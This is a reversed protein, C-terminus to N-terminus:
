KAETAIARNAVRSVVIPDSEACELACAIALDLTRGDLETCIADADVTPGWGDKM